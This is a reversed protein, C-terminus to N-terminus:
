ATIERTPQESGFTGKWTMLMMMPNSSTGQHRAPPRAGTGAAADSGRPWWGRRGAPDADIRDLCAMVVIADDKLTALDTIV